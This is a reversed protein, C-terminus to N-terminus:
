ETTEFNSDGFGKSEDGNGAESDQSRNEVKENLGQIAALAVGNEDLTAIHKDDEGNLGFIAHFDQAMPGIHRKDSDQKFSWETIPLSIVKELVSQASVAAFNDKMNRDSSSVFTGNVTLGSPTLTMDDTGGNVWFTFSKYPTSDFNTQHFSLANWYVTNVSISYRGSHVPSTNFLNHTAYSWDQFGNDLGDTYIDLSGQAAGPLGTVSLFAIVMLVTPLRTKMLM